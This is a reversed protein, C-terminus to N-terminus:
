RRPQSVPRGNKREWAQIKRVVDDGDTAHITINYSNYVDGGTKFPKSGRLSSPPVITEGGHVIAAVPAGIPGPVVGGKAFGLAKRQASTQNSGTTGQHGQIQALNLAFDNSLTTLAQGFVNALLPNAAAYGQLVGMEVLISHGFSHGALLDAQGANTALELIATKANDIRTTLSDLKKGANAAGSSATLKGDLDDQARILSLVSDRSQDQASQLNQQATQAEQSSLPFGHLTENLLLQAATLADVSQKQNVQAETVAIQARKVNENEVSNKKGVEGLQKQAATNADTAQAVQLQAQGLAIQARQITESDGTERAIVLAQQADKVDLQASALNLSAGQAGEQASHGANAAATKADALNRQADILDLTSSKSADQAQTLATQADKAAKSSASVGNLTDSYAKEADTLNKSASIADEKAQTLTNQKDAQDLIKSAATDTSGSGSSSSGADPHNLADLASQVNTQSTDVSIQAQIPAFASSSLATLADAANKVSDALGLYAFKAVDASAAASSTKTANLGLASNVGQTIAQVKAQASAVDDADKKLQAQPQHGKAVDENLKLQAKALGDNAQAVYDIAKGSEGMIHPIVDIAGLGPVSKILDGFLDKPSVPLHMSKGLITFKSSLAGTVSAADSAERVYGTVVPILDQGLEEKVHQIQAGLISFADASAKAAGGFSQSVQDLIVKQAAVINGQSEFTKISQKQQADLVIGALRLRGMGAVPDDLAKGLIKTASPLDIGFAASLDLASKTTRTFIDNGAGAANQVKTFRLLVNESAEITADTVGTLVSMKSALAQVQGATVNAASGTSVIAAETVRGAQNYARGAEIFDKAAATIGTFAAAAAFVQTGGLSSLGQFASSLGGKLSGISKGVKLVSAEQASAAKEASATQAKASAAAAKESDAAAKENAVAVRRAAAEASESSGKYAISVVKEGAM